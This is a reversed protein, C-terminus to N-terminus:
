FTRFPDFAFLQIWESVDIAEFFKLHLKNNNSNVANLIFPTFIQVVISFLNIITKEM